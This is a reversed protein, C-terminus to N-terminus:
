LNAMLVMIFGLVLLGTVVASAMWILVAKRVRQQREKKFRLRLQTLAEPSAKPFHLKTDSSGGNDTQNRFYGRNKRQAQNAKIRANM